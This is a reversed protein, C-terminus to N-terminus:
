MTAVWNSGRGCRAGQTIAVVADAWADFCEMDDTITAHTDRAASEGCEDVAARRSAAASDVM